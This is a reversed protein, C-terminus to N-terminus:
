NSRCLIQPVTIANAWAGNRDDLIVRSFYQRFQDICSEPSSKPCNPQVDLILLPSDIKSVQSSATFLYYRPQVNELLTHIKRTHM